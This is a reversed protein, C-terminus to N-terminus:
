KKTKRRPRAPGQPHAVIEFGAAEVTYANGGAPMDSVRIHEADDEFVGVVWGFWNRPLGAAEAPTANRVVMDGVRAGPTKTGNTM